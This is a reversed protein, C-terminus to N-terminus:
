KKNKYADFVRGIEDIYVKRANLEQLASPIKKPVNGDVKAVSPPLIGIQGHTAVNKIIAIKYEGNEEYAIADRKFLRMILKAHPNNKRWQPMKNKHADFMNIVEFQWKGSGTDYIDMCYSEANEMYKYIVGNKDAIPVLKKIERNKIHIRVRRIKNANCYEDLKKAWMDKIANKQKKEPLDKISSDSYISEYISLLENRIKPTAIESIDKDTCEISNLPVRKVITIKGDIENGIKGLATDNHLKAVTKHNKIATKVDGRDLKHSVVISLVKKRFTDYTIYNTSFPKPIQKLLDNLGAKEAMKSAESIKSILNRNVSSIVFADIAHHRNDGRYKKKGKTKDSDEDSEDEDNETTTESVIEMLTKDQKNSETLPTPRLIDNLGWEKRLMATIQGPVTIINNADIVSTFYERAVKSMYRTDNLMRQTFDGYKERFIEMADPRFRWQKSKPMLSVRAMIGDWSYKERNAFAEYPTRQGKFVRNCSACSIVKNARSDDFTESFPLLHEIEFEPTFLNKAEIKKEGCFPCIRKAIDESLDEWLKYKMRNEPTNSEGLEKLKEAIEKNKKTNEKQESLLGKLSEQGMPLERATEIVIRDPKGYVSIIKNYLKRLQNLAVHVTPNNIKGYHKEPFTEPDFNPNGGLVATKLIKGYYPLEDFKEGNYNVNFDYGALACANHYLEGKELFPVIKHMALSSLSATGDTLDFCENLINKAEEKEIKFHEFCLAIFGQENDAMVLDILKERITDDINRWSEGFCKNSAMVADTLNGYLGKRNESEFNFSFTDPINLFKKIKSFKAFQKKDVLKNDNYLLANALKQKEEVSLKNENSANIDIIELANIEQLIRFKQFIPYAKYGRHETHEFQCFGREPVKLQRQFFVANSIERYMDDTLCPHFKKQTEWIKALETEYMDREAYIEYENKNKIVNARMRVSSGAIKREYLFEGLTKDKLMERLRSIGAKMGKTEKDDARKDIKRNSKFGRRKNIHLIIRGIGFLDIKEKVAKARLKYPNRKSVSSKEDKPLLGFKRLIKCVNKTRMIQRNRRVSAANVMRKKVSLPVNTKPDRSNDFIRTGMGLIDVTKCENNILQMCWGISNAGMDFGLVKKDSM